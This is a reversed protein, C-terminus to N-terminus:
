QLLTSDVSEIVHDWHAHLFSQVEYHPSSNLLPTFDIGSLISRKNADTIIGFDERVRVVANFLLFLDMLVDPKKEAIAALANCIVQIASFENFFSARLNEKLKHFDKDYFKEFDRIVKKMEPFFEISLSQYGGRIYRLYDFVRVQTPEQKAIKELQARFLVDAESRSRLVLACIENLMSNTLMIRISTEAELCYSLLYKKLELNIKKELQLRTKDEVIPLSKKEDLNKLLLELNSKLKTILVRHQETIKARESTENKLLINLQPKM